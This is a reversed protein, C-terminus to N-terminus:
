KIEFRAAACFSEFQNESTEVSFSKAFRYKGPPLEGYYETWDAGADFSSGPKIIIAISDIAQESM